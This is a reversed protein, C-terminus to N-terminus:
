YERNLESHLKATTRCNGDVIKIPHSGKKGNVTIFTMDNKVLIVSLINRIDTARVRQTEQKM